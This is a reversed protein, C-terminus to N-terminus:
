NQEDKHQYYSCMNYLLFCGGGMSFVINLKKKDQVSKGKFNVM